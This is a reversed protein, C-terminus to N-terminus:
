AAQIVTSAPLIEQQLPSNIQIAAPFVNGPPPKTYTLCRVLFVSPLVGVLVLLVHLNVLAVPHDM